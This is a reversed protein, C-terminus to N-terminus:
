LINKVKNTLDIPYFYRYFCLGGVIISLIFSKSFRTSANLGCAAASTSSNRTRISPRLPSIFSTNSSNLFTAGSNFFSSPWFILASFVRMLSLIASIFDARSFVSVSESAAMSM